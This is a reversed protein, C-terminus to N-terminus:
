PKLHGPASDSASGSSIQGPAFAKAPEHGGGITGGSGAETGPAFVKACGSCQGGGAFAQQILMQGSSAVVLGVAAVSLAPFSFSRISVADDEIIEAWSTEPLVNRSIESVPLGVVPSPPSDRRNRPASLPLAPCITNTSLV